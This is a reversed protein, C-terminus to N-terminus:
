DKSNSYAADHAFYAKNLESRYLHKLAVQKELIKFEEVINVLHDVLM